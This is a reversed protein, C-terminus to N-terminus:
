LKYGGVARQFVQTPDYKESVEKLYALNEAGYGSMPDQFSAAYNTFQFPHDKGVSKTYATVDNFWKESADRVDTDYTADAWLPMIFLVPDQDSNASSPCFPLTSKSLLDEQVDELGMVNGGAATSAELFHRPLPEWQFDWTLGPVYSLSDGIDKTIKYVAKIVDLDNVFTVDAMLVQTVPPISTPYDAISTQYVEDLLKPEMEFFPQLSPHDGTSVTDILWLLIQGEGGVPLFFEVTLGAHAEFGNTDNTFLQFQEM